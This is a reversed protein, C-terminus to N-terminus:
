SSRGHLGHSSRDIEVGIRGVPVPDVGEQGHGAVETRRERDDVEFRHRRAVEGEGGGEGADVHAERHPGVGRGLHELQQGPEAGAELDVGGGLEVGAEVGPDVRRGDREIRGPGQRSGGTPRLAQADAAEGHASRGLELREGVPDGARGDGQPGTMGGM